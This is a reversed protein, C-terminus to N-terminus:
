EAGFGMRLWLEWGEGTVKEEYRAEELTEVDQESQSVGVLLRRMRLVRM